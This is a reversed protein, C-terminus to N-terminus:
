FHGALFRFMRLTWNWYTNDNVESTIVKPLCGHLFSDQGRLEHGFFYPFLIVFHKTKKEM